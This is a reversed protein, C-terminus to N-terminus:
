VDEWIVKPKKRRIISVVDRTEKNKVVALQLKEDFYVQENEETYNAKGKLLLLLDDEVM